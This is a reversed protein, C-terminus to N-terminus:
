SFTHWRLGRHLRQWVLNQGGGVLVGQFGKLGCDILEGRGPASLQEGEEGTLTEWLPPAIDREGTVIPVHESVQVRGLTRKIVERALESLVFQGSNFSVQEIRLLM